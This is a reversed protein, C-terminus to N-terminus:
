RLTSSPLPRSEPIEEKIQVFQEVQTALRAVREGADAYAAQANRLHKQGLNFSEQFLSFDGHLQQLRKLIERAREEIKIGM